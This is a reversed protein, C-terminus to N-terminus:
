KEDKIAKVQFVNIPVLVSDSSLNILLRRRAKGTSTRFLEAKGVAELFLKKRSRRPQRERLPDAFAAYGGCDLISSVSFRLKEACRPASGAPRVL